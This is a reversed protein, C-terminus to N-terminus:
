NVNPTAYLECRLTTAIIRGQADQSVIHEWEKPRKGPVLLAKCRTCKIPSAKRDSNHCVTLKTAVHLYNGLQTQYIPNRCHKCKM